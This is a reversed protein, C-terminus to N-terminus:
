ARKLGVSGARRGLATDGGVIGTAGREAMVMEILLPAADGCAVDNSRVDETGDAIELRGRGDVDREAFEENVLDGSADCALVGDSEGIGKL